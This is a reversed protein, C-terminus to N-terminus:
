CSRHAQPPVSSFIDICITLLGTAMRRAVVPGYSLPSRMSSPPPVGFRVLGVTSISTATCRVAPKAVPKMPPQQIVLSDLNKVYTGIFANHEGSMSGSEDIAVVMDLSSAAHLTTSAVVTSIFTALLTPKPFTM